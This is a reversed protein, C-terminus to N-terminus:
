RKLPSCALAVGAYGDRRKGAVLATPAFRLAEAACVALHRILPKTPAFIQHPHGTM